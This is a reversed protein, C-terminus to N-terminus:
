ITASSVPAGPSYWQGIGLWQCVKDCLTTDLVGWWSHSEFGCSWHHYASIVCVVVMHDRSYSGRWSNIYRYTVQIMLKHVPIMLKVLFSQEKWVTAANFWIRSWDCCHYICILNNLSNKVAYQSMWFLAYWVMNARKL